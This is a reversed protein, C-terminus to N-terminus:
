YHPGTKSVRAVFGLLVMIQWNKMKIEEPNDGETKIVPSLGMTCRLDLTVDITEESVFGGAGFVVSYDTKTCYHYMSSTSERYKKGDIEIKSYEDAAVLVGPSFGGYFHSNFNTEGPIFIKVLVPMEVYNFKIVYAFTGTVGNETLSYAYKKGKMSYFLEVGLGFVPNLRASLSLGLPVGLRPGPSLSDSVMMIDLVHSDDGYFNSISLGSKIGAQLFATSQSYAGASFGLFVILAIVCFAKKKLRVPSKVPFVNM